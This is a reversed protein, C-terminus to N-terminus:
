AVRAFRFGRRMSASLRTCDFSFAATRTGAVGAVTAVVAFAGGEGAPSFCLVSTSSAWATTGCTSLGVRASPTANSPSFDIGSVTVSWGATSAGNEAQEFSVVPAARCVFGAAAACLVCFLIVVCLVRVCSVFRGAVDRM